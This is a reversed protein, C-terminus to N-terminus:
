KEDLSRKFEELSNLKLDKKSLVIDKVPIKWDIDLSKDNYIIGSEHTLSYEQDVKYSFIAKKSLVVFGHAFGKPIFFQKKNEGSLIISEWKGFTFSDKRLDVAVDLVTGEIVRVLKTQEYPYTQFHLGRLVGFSSKSENDQIFKINPFNDKIVAEKYSEMFYGREDAFVRPQIIALGEISTKIVEM